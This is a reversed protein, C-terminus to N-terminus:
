SKIDETLEFQHFLRKKSSLLSYKATVNGEIIGEILGELIIIFEENREFNMKEIALREAKEEQEIEKLRMILAEKEEKYRM